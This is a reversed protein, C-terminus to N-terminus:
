AVLSPCPPSEELGEFARPLATPDVWRAESGGPVMALGHSEASVPMSRPRAHEATRDSPVRNEDGRNRRRASFFSLRRCFCCLRLCFPDFFLSLDLTLGALCCAFTTSLCRSTWWLIEVFIMLSFWATWTSSKATAAEGPATGRLAHM